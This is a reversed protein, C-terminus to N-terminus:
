TVPEQPETGMCGRGLPLKSGREGTSMWRGAQRTWPRTPPRCAARVGRPRPARRCSLLGTSGGQCSLRPCQLHHQPRTKNLCLLALPSAGLAVRASQGGRVEPGTNWSDAGWNKTSDGTFSGSSLPLITCSDLGQRSHSRLGTLRGRQAKTDEETVHM